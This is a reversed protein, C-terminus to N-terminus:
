EGFLGHAPIVGIGPLEKLTVMGNLYSVGDFPDNTYLLPADLDVYDAFQMLQAMATAGCSSEAMCGLMVQLNMEQARRIMKVAEALGTCKMLKINTGSFEGTLKELDALRKVSEDAITPIPSRETVWKMEEKMAPPMPQEVLVVNHKHMWLIMELVDEKNRWGGNVDVYLPKETLERVRSILARDNATGAKIKLIKFEAAEAIKQELTEMVDIGITFSTAVPQSKSIGTLEHYSQNLIKGYLDHLAIDLAAKAPNNGPALRDIEQLFYEIPLTPDFNLIFERCKEFFAITSTETDGLYAPLCAEGYGQQNEAEIQVFVSTTESRTNSSVGFPHRFKLRYPQYKLIM